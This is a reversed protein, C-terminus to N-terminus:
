IEVGSVVVAEALLLEPREEMVHEWERGVESPPKVAGEPLSVDRDVLDKRIPDHFHNVRLVVEDPYMVVM